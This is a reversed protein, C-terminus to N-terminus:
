EDDDDKGKRDKGAEIMEEEKVKEKCAKMELGAVSGSEELIREIWVRM